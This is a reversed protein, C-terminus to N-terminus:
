FISIFRIITQIKKTKCLAVTFSNNRQEICAGNFYAITSVDSLSNLSNSRKSMSIDCSLSHVGGDCNSYVGVGGNVFNGTLSQCILFSFQFRFFFFIWEITYIGTSPMSKDPTTASQLATPMEDSRGPIPEIHQPHPLSPSPSSSPSVPSSSQQKQQQFSQTAKLPRPYRSNQTPTLSM